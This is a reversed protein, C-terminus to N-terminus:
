ATPETNERNKSNAATIAELAARQLSVAEGVREALMAIASCLGQFQAGQNAALRELAAQIDSDPTSIVGAAPQRYVFGEGFTERVYDVMPEFGAAALERVIQAKELLSPGTPLPMAKALDQEGDPADTLQGRVYVLKGDEDRMISGDEGRDVITLRRETRKRHGLYSEWRVQHEGGGDADTTVGHKGVSAIVGHHAAGTEPHKYYISDGIAVSARIEEGGGPKLATVPKRKDTM